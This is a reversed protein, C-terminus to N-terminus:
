ARDLNDAPKHLNHFDICFSAIGALICLVALRQCIGQSNLQTKFDSDAFFYSVLPTLILMIFFFLGSSAFKWVMAERSVLSSPSVDERILRDNLIIHSFIGM